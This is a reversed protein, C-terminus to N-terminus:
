STLGDLIAQAQSAEITGRYQSAFQGLTDIAISRQGLVLPALANDFKKRINNQHSKRLATSLSEQDRRARELQINPCSEFRNELRHIQTQISDGAHSLRNRTQDPLASDAAAIADLLDLARNLQDHHSLMESATIGNTLPISTFSTQNSDSSQSTLLSHHETTSVKSNAPALSTAVAITSASISTKNMTTKTKAKVLESLTKPRSIARNIRNKNKPDKFISSRDHFAATKENRM